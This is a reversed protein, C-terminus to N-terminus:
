GSSRRDVTVFSGNHRFSLLLMAFTGLAPKRSVTDNNIKNV